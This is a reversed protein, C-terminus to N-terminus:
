ECDPRPKGHAGSGAVAAHFIQARRLHHVDAVGPVRKLTDKVYVDLYNSM